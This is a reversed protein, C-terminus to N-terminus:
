AVFNRVFFSVLQLSFGVVLLIGFVVSLRDRLSRAFETEFKEIANQVVAQNYEEEHGSAFEIVVKDGLLTDTEEYDFSQIDGHIYPDFVEALFKFSNTDEDLRGEARLDDYAERAPESFDKTVWRNTKNLFWETGGMALLLAAIFDIM